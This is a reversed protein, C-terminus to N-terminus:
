RSLGWGSARADAVIGQATAAPVRILATLAACDLDLAPLAGAGATKWGWQVDAADLVDAMQVLGPQAVNLVQPLPEARAILARLVHGLQAPGIYARRPGTGDPFQDLTVFDQRAANILLGDCGAVNAIRLCTVHSQGAVALEMDHKARGYPTDPRAPDSESVPADPRGYVAQSSALLVPLDARAGLDAAALALATNDALRAPDTTGALAIIGTIGHPLDPVPAALIDWAFPGGQRTQWLVPGDKPWQAALARGVRGSGGLILPGYITQTV